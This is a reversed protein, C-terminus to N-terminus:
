MHKVVHGPMVGSIKALVNTLAETGPPPSDHLSTEIKEGTVGLLFKKPLSSASKLDSAKM